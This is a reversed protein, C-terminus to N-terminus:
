PPQLGVVMQPVKRGALPQINPVVGAANLASAVVPDTAAEYLLVGYVPPTLYGITNGAVRIGAADFAAILDAAYRSAETNGLRTIAVEPIRTRAQVLQETLKKSQEHTLRRGRVSSRVADDTGLEAHLEAASREALLARREAAAIRELLTRREAEAAAVRRTASAARMETAAVTQELMWARLEVERRRRLNQCDGGNETPPPSQLAPETRHMPQATQLAPAATMTPEIRYADPRDSPDLRFGQEAGGSIRVLQTLRRRLMVFTAVGLVVMLVVALVSAATLLYAADFEFMGKPM